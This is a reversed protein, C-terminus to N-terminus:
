LGLEKNISDWKNVTPSKVADTNSDMPKKNMRRDNVEIMYSEFKEANFLTAPRIYIKMKNDNKWEANKLTIVDKFDEVTHGDKLRAEILRKTTKGKETIKKGTILNFSAIVASTGEKITKSIITKSDLTVEITNSTDLKGDVTKRGVTKREDTKGYVTNRDVTELIPTPSIHWVSKGFKGSTNTPQQRVLLKAKELERVYGQIKYKTDGTQASIGAISFDWGKPKSYIYAWVGKSGFSLVTHNLIENPAATWGKGVKKVESPQKNM